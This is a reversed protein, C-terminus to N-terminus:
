RTPSSPWNASGGSAALRAPWLDGDRGRAVYVAGVANEPTADPSSIELRFRRGKVEWRTPFTFLVPDDDAVTACPVTMEAFPVGDEEALALRLTCTNARGYTTMPIAM